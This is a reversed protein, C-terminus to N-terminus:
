SFLNDILIEYSIEKEINIIYTHYYCVFNFISYYQYINHSATQIVLIYKPLHLTSHINKSNKIYTTIHKGRDNKSRYNDM